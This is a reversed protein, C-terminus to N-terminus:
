QHIDMKHFAIASELAAVDAKQYDNAEEWKERIIPIWQQELVQLEPLSLEGIKRKHFKAHRLGLITHEKWPTAQGDSAPATEFDASPGYSEPPTTPPAEPEEPLPPPVVTPKPEPPAEVPAQAKKPKVKVEEQAAKSAEEIGKRVAAEAADLDAESDTLHSELEERIYVNSLPDPFAGRLAAAKACKSLMYDDMKDWFESVVWTKTDYDYVTGVFAKWRAIAVEPHKRQKHYVTCKAAEPPDQALWEDRWAGDPGAWKIECGDYNGTREAVATLGMIGTVPVLTPVKKTEGKSDTVKTYRKTAHIQKSFPDLKTRECIRIFTMQEDEPFKSLVTRKLLAIEEESLFPLSTAPYYQPQTYTQPIASSM